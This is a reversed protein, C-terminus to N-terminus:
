GGDGARREARRLSVTLGCVKGDPEHPVAEEDEGFSARWVSIQPHHAAGALTACLAFVKPGLPLIAPAFGEGLLALSRGELTAFCEFPEAVLYEERQPADHRELLGENAELVKAYFREDFGRPIYVIANDVELSDLAGAAKFPEYGLGVLAVPDRRNQLEGAYYPIVPGLSLVGPPLEGPDRYAAPAYLFDVDVASPDELDALAQVVSAIRPRSMSSIDILVRAGPDLERFWSAVFPLFREDWEQKIDFKMRDFCARSELYQENQQGRFEVAIAKPPRERMAEAIAHSRPEYGVSAIMGDYGEAEALDDLERTRWPRVAVRRETTSALRTM